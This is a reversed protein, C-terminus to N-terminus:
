LSCHLSLINLKVFVKVVMPESKAKMQVWKLDFFISLWNVASKFIEFFHTTRISSLCEDLEKPTLKLQM